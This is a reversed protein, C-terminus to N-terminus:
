VYYRDSQVVSGKADIITITVEDVQQHLTINFASQVPNPYITEQVINKNDSNNITIVQRNRLTGDFYNVVEKRKGEEAFSVAYQWNLNSEHPHFFMAGSPCTSCSGSAERALYNWNGEWRVNDPYHIQVGRIRFLVFGSDYPINM